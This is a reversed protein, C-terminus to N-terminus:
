IGVKWERQKPDYVQSTNTPRQQRIVTLINCTNTRLEAQHVIDVDVREVRERRSSRKPAMRIWPALLLLLLM